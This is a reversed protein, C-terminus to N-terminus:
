YLYSNSGERSQNSLACFVTIIRQSGWSLAIIYFSFSPTFNQQLKDGALNSQISGPRTNSTNTNPEILINTILFSKFPIKM